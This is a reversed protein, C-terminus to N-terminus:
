VHALVSSSLSADIEGIFVSRPEFKLREEAGQTRGAPSDDKGCWSRPPPILLLTHTQSELGFLLLRFSTATKIMAGM